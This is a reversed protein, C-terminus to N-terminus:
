SVLDSWFRIPRPTAPSRNTEIRFEAGFYSVLDAGYYIIDTQYVSFVPNGAESPEDPLFRHGYVPVLTPADAVKTRAISLAEELGNPRPGWAPPWFRNNEVDFAIGEAPWALRSELDSASDSRWNPFRASAPLATRLLSRLDPPFSFGYRGEVEVIEQDSLGAEFELGREELLEVIDHWAHSV